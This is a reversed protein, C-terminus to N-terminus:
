FEEQLLLSVSNNGRQSYNRYWSTGIFEISLHQKCNYTFFFFFFNRKGFMIEGFNYIKFFFCGKLNNVNNEVYLSINWAKTMKIQLIIIFDSRKLRHSWTWSRFSRWWTTPAGDGHITANSQIKETWQIHTITPLWAWLCFDLNSQYCGEAWTYKQAPHEEDEQQCYGM